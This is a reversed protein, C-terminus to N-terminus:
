ESEDVEEIGAFGLLCVFFEEQVHSCTEYECKETVDHDVPAEDGTRRDERESVDEEDNRITTQLTNLLEVVHDTATYKESAHDEEERRENGEVNGDETDDAENVCHDNGGHEALCEAIEETVFRLEGCRDSDCAEKEEEGIEHEDAVPKDTNPVPRGVSAHSGIVGRETQHREGHEDLDEGVAFGCILRM